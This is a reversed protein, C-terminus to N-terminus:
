YGWEVHHANYCGWGNLGGVKLALWRAGAIQQAPTADYAYATVGPVSRAYWSWNANLMGLGGNYSGHHDWQIGQWGNGPQECRGIRLFLDDPYARSQVPNLIPITKAHPHSHFRSRDHANEALTVSFRIAANVEVAHIYRLARDIEVARAYRVAPRLDVTTTTTAHVRPQVRPQVRPVSITVSTTPERDRTLSYGTLGAIALGAAVLVASFRSVHRV